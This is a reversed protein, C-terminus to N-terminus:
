LSLFSNSFFLVAKKGIIDNSVVDYFQCYATASAYTVDCYFDYISPNGDNAFLNNDKPYVPWNYFTLEFTYHYTGPHADFRCGVLGFKANFSLLQSCYDSSMGDLPLFIKTGQFELGLKGTLAIGAHVELRIKRFNQNITLPDDGKPCMVLFNVILHSFSSNDILIGLSCDSGFFGPDCECMQISQSDWNTYAIGYGDGKGQIRSDYDPGNYISIDQMTSCIGHGSCENPCTASTNFFNSESGSKFRLIRVEKAPAELLAMTVNVYGLPDIAIVLMPANRWSTLSILGMHRILGLLAM